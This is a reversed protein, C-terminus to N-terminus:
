RISSFSFIRPKNHLTKLNTPRTSMGQYLMYIQTHTGVQKPYTFRSARQNPPFSERIKFLPAAEGIPKQPSLNQKVFMYTIFIILKICRLFPYNRMETTSICLSSEVSTLVEHPSEERHKYVQTKNLPHNTKMKHICTNKSSPHNRVVYQYKYGDTENYSFTCQMKVLM